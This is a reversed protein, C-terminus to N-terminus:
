LRAKCKINGERFEIKDGASSTQNRSLSPAIYADNFNPIQNGPHVQETQLGPRVGLGLSADICAGHLIRAWPALALTLVCQAVEKPEILSKKPMQEVFRQREEPFMPSLTSAEFMDTRTAGPSVCFVTLSSHVHKAALHQTLYSIAAKSM